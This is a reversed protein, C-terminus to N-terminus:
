DLPEVPIPTHDPKVTLWKVGGDISDTFNDVGLWSRSRYEKIKPYHANVTDNSSPKGMSLLSKFREFNFCENHLFKM